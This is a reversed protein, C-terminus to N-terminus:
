RGSREAQLRALARLAADRLIEGGREGYLSACAVYSPRNYDGPALFYGLYDNVLGAILVRSVGQRGLRKVALHVQGGPPAPM